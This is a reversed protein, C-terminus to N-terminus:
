PINKHQDQDHLLQGDATADYNLGPVLGLLCIKSQEDVKTVNEQACGRFLICLHGGCDPISPIGRFGSLGFGRLERLRSGYLPM